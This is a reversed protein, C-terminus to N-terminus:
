RGMRDLAERDVLRTYLHWTAYGLVPLAVALGVLLPITGLTLILGVTIGWRLLVLPNRRFAALSTAVAREASAKRDVLLPLSVVSTALVMIAFLSGVINGVIIM